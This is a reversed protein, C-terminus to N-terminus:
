RDQSRSGLLIGNGALTKSEKRRIQKDSLPKRRRANVIMRLPVEEFAM